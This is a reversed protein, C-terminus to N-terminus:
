PVKRMQSLFHDVGSFSNMRAEQVLRGQADFFLVAPLGRIEYSDFLAQMTEDIETADIHAVVFRQAEAQFEPNPFVRKEIERCAICWSAGFDIMLPKGAAKAAAKAADHDHYWHLEAKASGQQQVSAAPSLAFGVLGMAGASALILGAIKRIKQSLGDHFSLHLAGLAVGVLILALAGLAWLGTWPLELYARLFGLHPSAIYLSAVVMVLGLVSHAVEMWRGSKPMRAILQSFTGLLLFLLGIGFAYAVMLGAGLLPNGQKAILALIFVLVPGACPAAIIGAVLGMVFAGLHGSGGVSSLKTQVSAPVAFEFAGLLSAAMILGLAAISLVVAPMAMLSGSALGLLSFLVAIGSYFLAMGVVYALSLTFGRLYSTQRAGFVAITIPILPYVCPSLSVVVGAVFALGVAMWLSGSAVAGGIWEGLRVDLPAQAAPAAWAVASVWLSLSILLLRKVM